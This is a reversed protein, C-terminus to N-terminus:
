VVQLFRLEGISSHTTVRSSSLRRRAEQEAYSAVVDFIAFVLRKPPRQSLEEGRVLFVDPRDNSRDRLVDLLPWLQLELRHDRGERQESEDNEHHTSSSAVRRSRRHTRTRPRHSRPSDRRMGEVSRAQPRSTTVSPRDLTGELALIDLSVPVREPHKRRPSLKGRREVDFRRPVVPFRTWRRIGPM